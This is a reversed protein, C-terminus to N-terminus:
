VPKVERMTGAYNKKLDCVLLSPLIVWVEGQGSIQEAEHRTYTLEM